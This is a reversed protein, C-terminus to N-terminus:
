PECEPCRSASAIGGTGYCVECEPNGTNIFKQGCFGTPKGAMAMGSKACDTLTAPEHITPAMIEEIDLASRNM